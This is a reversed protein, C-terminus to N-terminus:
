LIRKIEHRKKNSKILLIGITLVGVLLLGIGMFVLPDVPKKKSEHIVGYPHQAHLKLQNAVAPWPDKLERADLNVTKAPENAKGEDYYAILNSTDGFQKGLESFTEIRSDTLDLSKLQFSAECDVSSKFYKFNIDTPFGNKNGKFDWRKILQGLASTTIENQAARWSANMGEWANFGSTVVTTCDLDQRTCGEGIKLTANQNYMLRSKGPPLLFGMLNLTSSSGPKFLNSISMESGTAFNVVLTGEKAFWMKTLPRSFVSVEIKERGDSFTVDVAVPIGTRYQGREFESTFNKLAESFENSNGLIKASGIYSLKM